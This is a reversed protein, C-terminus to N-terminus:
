SPGFPPHPTSSIDGLCDSSLAYPISDFWVCLNRSVPQRGSLSSLSPPAKENGPRAALPRLLSVISRAGHPCSLASALSMSCAASAAFAAKLLAITRVTSM